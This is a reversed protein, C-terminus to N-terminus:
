VKFSVPTRAAPVLSVISVVAPCVIPIPGVAFPAGNKMLVAANFLM